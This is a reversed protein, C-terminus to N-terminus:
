AEKRTVCMNPYFTMEAILSRSESKGREAIMADILQKLFGIM